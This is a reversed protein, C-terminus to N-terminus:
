SHVKNRRRRRALLFGILIGAVLLLAGLIGCVVGLVIGLTNSGACAPEPQHRALSPSPAARSAQVCAPCQWLKPCPLLFPRSVPTSLSAKM